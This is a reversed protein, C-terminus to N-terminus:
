VVSKRDKGEHALIIISRSEHPNVIEIDNLDVTSGSRCIVRTNKTDPIKSKLEDEMEVKDKEGLIVIVPKKQNENAILLESIIPFIKESWGLILTHDKEVVFSHGKRLEDLKNSIGSALVGILTSVIFIGGLTVGLMTIRFGWGTDGGMTGPDLTRMLSKWAAEIFGMTEGDDQTFGSVTLLIAAACVLLLSLLGLWGILAIPGRAMINDFRYRLKTKFSINSEAM